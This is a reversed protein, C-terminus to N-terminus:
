EEEEEKEERRFLELRDLEVVTKGGGNVEVKKVVGLALYGAKTRLSLMDGYEIRRIRGM